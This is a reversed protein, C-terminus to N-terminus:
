WYHHRLYSTIYYLIELAVFTLSIRLQYDIKCQNETLKSHTKIEYM